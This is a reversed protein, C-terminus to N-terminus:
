VFKLQHLLVILGQNNDIAVDEKAIKRYVTVLVIITIIAITSKLKITSKILQEKEKKRAVKRDVTLFFIVITIIAITSKSKIISKILQKKEKRKAVKREITM